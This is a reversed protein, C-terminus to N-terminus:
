SVAAREAVIRRQRAIYPVALLMALLLHWVMAAFVPERAQTGATAIALALAPHRGGAALALRARRSPDDGGFWHGVAMGLLTFGVLAALTGNGVLRLMQPGAVVLLPVILALVLVVAVRRLPTALREALAPWLLHVLLGLAIPLVLGMGVIRAVEAIPLASDSARLAQAVALWFPILVLACLGAVLLLAATYAEDSAVKGHKLLLGPPLPSMSLAVLAAEVAPDLSLVRVALLTALPMAIGIAFLARALGAPQALEARLAPLPVRLGLSLVLLFMSVLLALTIAGTM